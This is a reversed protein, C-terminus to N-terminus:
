QWCSNNHSSAESEISVHVYKKLLFPQEKEGSFKMNQTLKIMFWPFM